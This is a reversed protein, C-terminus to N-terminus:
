GTWASGAARSRRWISDWRRAATLIRLPSSPGSRHSRRIHELELGLARYFLIQQLRDVEAAGYLRYGSGSTRAPHLLGIRDYYRLTRSSVGALQALAKVTYEGNDKM